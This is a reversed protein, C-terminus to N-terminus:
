KGEQQYKIALYENKISKTIIGTLVTFTVYAAFALILVILPFVAVTEVFTMYFYAYGIRAFIKSFIVHFLVYIFLSWIMQQAQMKKWSKKEPANVIEDYTQIVSQEFNMLALGKKILDIAAMVILIIFFILFFLPFIAFIFGMSGGYKIVEIMQKVEDFMSFNYDATEIRFLPLFFLLIALLVMLSSKVLDFIIKQKLKEKNNDILQNM